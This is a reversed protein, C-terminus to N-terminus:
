NSTECSSYNRMLVEFNNRVVFYYFFLMLDGWINFPWPLNLLCSSIIVSAGPSRYSKSIPSPINKLANPFRLEM